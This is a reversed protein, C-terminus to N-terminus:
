LRLNNEGYISTFADDWGPSSSPTTELEEFAPLEEATVEIPTYSELGKIKFKDNLTPRRHDIVSVHEIQKASNRMYGEITAVYRTMNLRAEEDAPTREAKARPYIPKHVAECIYRNNIYIHAIFIEGNNDDLWYVEVRNGEVLQMLRILDPGTAIKGLEGLLWEANQFRLIGARCSTTTHNGIHQLFSRYNTPRLNPNQNELFVEWRTKGKIKSHESNNWTMIDLLCEKALTDYPIIRKSVNSVQNPESKAFPRALWGERKKELEYRM